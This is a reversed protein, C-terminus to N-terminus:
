VSDSEGNDGNDDSGTESSTGNKTASSDSTSQSKDTSRDHSSSISQSSDSPSGGRKKHKSDNSVHERDHEVMSATSLTSSYAQFGVSGQPISADAPRIVCVFEDPEDLVGNQCSGDEVSSANRNAKESNSWLNGNMSHLSQLIAATALTADVSTTAMRRSCNSETASNHGDESKKNKKPPPGDNISENMCDDLPARRIVKACRLYGIAPYGSADHFCM